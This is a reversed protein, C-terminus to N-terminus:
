VAVHDDTFLNCDFCVVGEGREMIRAGPCDRTILPVPELRPFWDPLGYCPM